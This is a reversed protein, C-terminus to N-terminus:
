EVEPPLDAQPAARDLQDLLEVFDSTLPRVYAQTGANSPHEFGLRQAHLLPRGQGDSFGRVMPGQYDRIYVKEGVLPHGSESLHIRIQHQRGTELRCEVYSVQLSGGGVVLESPVDLVDLVQVHTTAEKAAQGTPSGRRARGRLGDGRNRVISTSITADEARGLVLARYRRDVSHVRFQQQLHREASKTRAFVLVGTTDIDLRQVVRLMPTPKRTRRRLATTALHLLTDREGAYPVSILGAPKDVVVVDRDVHLLEIVHTKAKETRVTVDINQGCTVRAAHDTTVVGDTRVHGRSIIGRVQNWSRGPMQGRVVAALTKGDGEDDIEFSQPEIRDDSM